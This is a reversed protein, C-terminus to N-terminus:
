FATNHPYPPWQHMANVRAGCVKSACMGDCPHALTWWGCSARRPRHAPMPRLRRSAIGWHASMTPSPRGTASRPDTWSRKQIPPDVAGVALPRRDSHDSLTPRNASAIHWSRVRSPSAMRQDLHRIASMQHMETWASPKGAFVGLSIVGCAPTAKNRADTRQSSSAHREVHRVVSPWRYM